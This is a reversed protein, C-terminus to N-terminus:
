QSAVNSALQGGPTYSYTTGLVSSGLAQAYTAGPPPQPGTTFRALNAVGPDVGTTAAERYPNDLLFAM